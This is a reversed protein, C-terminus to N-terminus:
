MSHVTQYFTTLLFGLINACPGTTSSAFSEGIAVLSIETTTLSLQVHMCHKHKVKLVVHRVASAGFVKLWGPRGVSWDDAAM